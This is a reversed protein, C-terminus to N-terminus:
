KQVSNVKHKGGHKRMEDSLNNLRYQHPETHVGIKMLFAISRVRKGTGTKQELNLFFVLKFSIKKGM